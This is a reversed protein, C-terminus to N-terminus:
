DKRRYGASAIKFHMPPRNWAKELNYLIQNILISAGLAKTSLYGVIRGITHYYYDMASMGSEDAM